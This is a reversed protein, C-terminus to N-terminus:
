RRQPASESSACKRPSEHSGVARVAVPCYKLVPQKSIADTEETTAENPSARNRWLENWHIPMFLLGRSIAHDIRVIGRARGHRSFVEIPAGDELGQEEADTPHMQVYPGPDLQNLNAVTGTKTRTHWQNPTRGTTLILPFQADP